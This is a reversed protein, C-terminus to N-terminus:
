TFEARKLAVFLQGHRQDNALLKRGLAAVGSGLDPCDLLFAQDNGALPFMGLNTRLGRAGVRKNKSSPGSKAIQATCGAKNQCNTTYAFVHYIRLTGVL